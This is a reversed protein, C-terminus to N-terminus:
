WIIGTLFTPRVGAAYQVVAVNIPLVLKGVRVSYGTTWAFGPEVTYNGIEMHVGDVTAWGYREKNEERAAKREAALAKKEERSLNARWEREKLVLGHIQSYDVDRPLVKLSLMESLDDHFNDAFVPDEVYPTGIKKAWAIAREEQEDNLRVTEGRVKVTLGQGEYRPPVLVGNHHLQEM